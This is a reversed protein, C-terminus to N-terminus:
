STQAVQAFHLSAMRWVELAQAQVVRLAFHQEFAAVDVGQEPLSEPLVLLVAPPPAYTELGVEVLLDHLALQLGLQLSYPTDAEVQQVVLAM